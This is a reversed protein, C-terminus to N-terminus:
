KLVLLISLYSQWYSNKGDCALFSSINMNAHITNSGIPIYSSVGICGGRRVMSCTFIWFAAILLVLQQIFWKCGEAQPMICCCTFINVPCILGESLGSILCVFTFQSILYFNCFVSTTGYVSIIYMYTNISTKTTCLVPFHTKNINSSINSAMILVQEIELAAM